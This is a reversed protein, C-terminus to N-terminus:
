RFRRKAYEHMEAADLERTSNNMRVFFRVTKGDRDFVADVSPAVRVVCVHQGDVQVMSIRVDAAATKGMRTTLLTTLWNEFADADGRQLLKFDHTLDVLTGDDAVGILLVGGERSNAFGVITKVVADELAKNRGKLERDWRASAKFEVTASEGRSLLRRVELVAEPEVPATTVAFASVGDASSSGRGAGFFPLVVDRKVEDWQRLLDNLSIGAMDLQVPQSSLAQLSKHIKIADAERGARRLTRLDFYMKDNKRQLWGAPGSKGLRYKRSAATERVTLGLEAAVDDIRRAAARARDDDTLM